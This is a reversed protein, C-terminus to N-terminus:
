KSHVGQHCVSEATFKHRRCVVPLAIVLTIKTSCICAKARVTGADCVKVDICDLYVIPYLADLARSQWATVSPILIPSVETGQMEELNVQIGRVKM